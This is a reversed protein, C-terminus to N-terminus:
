DRRDRSTRSYRRCVVPRPALRDRLAITRVIHSLTQARKQREISDTLNYLFSSLQNTLMRVLRCVVGAIILILVIRAGSTLLWALITDFHKQLTLAFREM